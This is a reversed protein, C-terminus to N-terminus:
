ILEITDVWCPRDCPHFDSTSRGTTQWKDNEIVFAPDDTKRWSVVMEALKITIDRFGFIQCIGTDLTKLVLLDM